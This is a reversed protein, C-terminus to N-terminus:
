SYLRAIHTKLKKKEAAVKENFAKGAVENLPERHVYCEIAVSGAYHLEDKPMFSDEPIRTYYFIGMHSKILGDFKAASYYYLASNPVELFGAPELILIDYKNKQLLQRATFPNNTFTVPHEGKLAMAVSNTAEPGAFLIQKKAM